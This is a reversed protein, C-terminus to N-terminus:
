LFAEKRIHQSQQSFTCTQPLNNGEKLALLRTKILTATNDEALTAGGLDQHQHPLPAV